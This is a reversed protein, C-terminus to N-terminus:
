TCVHMNYVETYSGSSIRKLLNEPEFFILSFNQFRRSNSLQPFSQSSSSSFFNFSSEHHGTYPPQNKMGKICEAEEPPKELSEQRIFDGFGGM